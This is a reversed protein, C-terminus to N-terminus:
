ILVLLQLSFVSFIYKRVIVKYLPLAAFSKKSRQGLLSYQSAVAYTVCAKMVKQTNAAVDHGGIKALYSRQYM